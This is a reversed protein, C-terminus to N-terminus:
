RMMEVLVLALGGLICVFFVLHDPDTRFENWM